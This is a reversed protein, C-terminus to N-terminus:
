ASDRLRGVLPAPFPPLDADSAVPLEFPSPEEAPPAEWEARARELAADISTRMGEPSSRDVRM